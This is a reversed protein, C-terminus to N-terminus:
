KGMVFPELRWSGGLGCRDLIEGVIKRSRSGDYLALDIYANTLGIAGGLVEGAAGGKLAETLADEIKGRGDVEQGRVLRSAPFVAMVFEAGLESLPNEDLPYDRVLRFHRTTGAIIDKRLGGPEPDKGSYGCYTEHPLHKEWDHEHEVKDIFEPLETLPMSDALAADSLKIERVRNVVGDEGLAEDLWLFVVTFAAKEEIQHFLPHWITLDVKEDELDVRPTIWVETAGFLKGDLRISSGAFSDAQRAAYFTWGPLPPAQSLWYETVLRRHATGEASLTFSHGGGDPGPGFVWAMGPLWQEVMPSIKRELDGSQKKSILEFLGESASEYARWFGEVRQKLTLEEVRVKLPANKRFLNRWM